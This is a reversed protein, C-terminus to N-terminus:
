GHHVKCATKAANASAFVGLLAAPKSTERPQALLDPGYWATFREVLQGGDGPVLARSVAYLPGAAISTASTRRWPHPGIM